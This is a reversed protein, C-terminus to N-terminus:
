EEGEDRIVEFGISGCLKCPAPIEIEHAHEVIDGCISCKWRKSVLPKPNIADPFRGMFRIVDHENM